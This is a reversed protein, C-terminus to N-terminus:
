IRNNKYSNRRYRTINRNPIHKKKDKNLQFKYVVGYAGAGLAHGVRTFFDDFHEGDGLRYFPEGAEIELFNGGKM